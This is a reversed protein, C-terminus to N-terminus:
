KKSVTLNLTWKYVHAASSPRITKSFYEIIQISYERRHTLRPSLNSDWTFCFNNLCKCSEKILTSKTCQGLKTQILACTHNNINGTQSTARGMFKYSCYVDNEGARGEEREERRERARQRERGGKGGNRTEKWERGRKGEKGGAEWKEGEGEKGKGKPRREREEERGM